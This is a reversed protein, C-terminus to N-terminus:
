DPKPMVLGWDGANLPAQNPKMVLFCNAAAAGVLDGSGQWPVPEVVPVGDRNGVRAPIFATLGSKPQLPTALRAALFVPEEFGAGALVGVARRAFLEFTVYTSVPNGPLGFFFKERVRGFVLPRGPRIAVSDFYFEAGLERLVQEVFDYKGASVGGSLILLDQQLGELVKRQLTEPSDPAIGLNHAIGGAGAVQSALSFANSNRIQFWQPQRDLPVLEDGTALIAVRPQRFARVSACGLSALLGLESSGLKGWRLAVVGERAESGKAVINELAGISHLVTIRSGDAKTNEVMVVADAGEPVPAGTMISICHGPILPSDWHGGAPIEGVCELDIPTSSLDDSRVAFGDRASRPFPPYDRDARVDEALIRGRASELSVTETPPNIKAAELRQKLVYLAQEFTLTM